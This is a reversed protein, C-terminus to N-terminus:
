GVACSGCTVAGDLIRRELAPYVDAFAMAQANAGMHNVLDSLVNSHSRTKVGEFDALQNLPKKTFFYNGSYYNSGM